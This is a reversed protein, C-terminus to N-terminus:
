LLTAGLIFMSDPYVIINFISHNNLSHTYFSVERTVVGGIEFFM